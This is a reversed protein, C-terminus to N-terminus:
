LIGDLVAAEVVVVVVGVGDTIGEIGGELGLEIEEVDGVDVVLGGEDYREDGWGDMDVRGEDRRLM